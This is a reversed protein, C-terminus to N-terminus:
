RGQKAYSGFLGEPRAFLFVLLVLLAVADSAHPTHCTACKNETYPRHMSKRDVATTRHCDLCLENVPKRTSIVGNKVLHCADCKNASVPQHFTTKLLGPRDSAHPTHCKLCGGTVPYRNHMNQFKEEGVAHCSLCLTDRAQILLGSNASRHPDHCTRCGKALPAHRYKKEFGSRDHCQYCTSSADKKLLAPLPSNHPQHCNSCKGAGRPNHASKDKATKRVEQHCGYCLDPQEQRFFLGGVLGHPLHCAGCQQNKVPAHVNGTSFRAAMKPHCEVCTKASAREVPHQATQVCAILAAALVAVLSLSFVLNKTTVM